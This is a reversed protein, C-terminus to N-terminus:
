RVYAESGGHGGLNPSITTTPPASSGTWREDVDAVIEGGAREVLAVATAAVEDPVRGALLAESGAEGPHALPAVAVDAVALERRLLVLAASAQHPEAFRAAVVRM